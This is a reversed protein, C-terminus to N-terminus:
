QYKEKIKSLLEIGEKFDNPSTILIKDVYCGIEEIFGFVNNKYHEWNLGIMKAAKENKESPIMICPILNIFSPKLIEVLDEIEQLSSISQTIVSHPNAEIKVKIDRSNIVKNPISLNLNVMKNYGLSKLIKVADTPKTLPKQIEYNGMTPKDGLIFLLDRIGLFVSQTVLQVLSNVNRDRTRISCSIGMPQNKCYENIM